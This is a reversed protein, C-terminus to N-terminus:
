KCRQMMVSRCQGRRKARRAPCERRRCHFLGFFARRESVASCAIVTVCRASSNCPPQATAGVRKDSDSAAATRAAPMPAAQPEEETDTVEGEADLHSTVASFEICDTGAVPAAPVMLTVVVRSQVHAADLADDHTTIVDPLLPCPLPCSDYRTAAFLSGEGRTPLTSTFLEFTSMVCSAACHRKLTDGVATLMPAPPPVAVTATSADGPEHVHVAAVSAGHTRVALAPPDPLPETVRVISAFPPAPRLAVAV